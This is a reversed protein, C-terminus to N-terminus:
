SIEDASALDRGPRLADWVRSVSGGFGPLALVAIGHGMAVVGAILTTAGGGMLLIGDVEGLSQFFSMEWDPRNDPRWDFLESNTVQEPFELPEPAHLSYRVQISRRTALRTSVYGRVIRGELFDTGSSYVLIRFGAKSLERGLAEAAGPAAPDGKVNGVIAIIPDVGKDMSATLITDSFIASYCLNM